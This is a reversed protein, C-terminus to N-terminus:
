ARGNRLRCDGATEDDSDLMIRGGRYNLLWEVKIGKELADYAIGYAKLHDTQSLDMPILLKQAFAPLAFLSLALLFLFKNM